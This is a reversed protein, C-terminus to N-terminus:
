AATSPRPRRRPAACRFAPDRIAPTRSLSRRADRAPERRRSSTFSRRHTSDRSPASRSAPDPESPPRLPIRLGGRYDAREVLEGDADWTSWEGARKGSEFRGEAAKTGNEHFFTWRGEKVGDRALGESSLQGNEHWWRMPRPEDDGFSAEMRPRGSPWWARWRGTPEGHDHEREHELSGDPFYGTDLGHLVSAGDAGILVHWERRTRAHGADYYSTRRELLPERAEPLDAALMRSAARFDPACAAAALALLAAALAPV